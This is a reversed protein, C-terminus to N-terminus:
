GEVVLRQITVRRSRPVGAAWLQHLLKFRLPPPAGFEAGMSSAHELEEESENNYELGVEEGIEVKPPQPQPPQPQPLPTNLCSSPLSTPATILRGASRSPASWGGHL